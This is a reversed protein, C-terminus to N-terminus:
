KGKMKRGRKQPTRDSVDVCSIMMMDRGNWRLPSAHSLLVMGDARIVEALRLKGTVKTNRVPCQPCPTDRGIFERYCIEGVFDRGSYQQVAQNTYIIEHTDPDIIYIYEANDDLAARFDASFAASDSQRLRLLNSAVIRSVFMLTGAQEDTWRRNERCEDFGIIGTFVGNDRIAYQLMSRIGQSELLM